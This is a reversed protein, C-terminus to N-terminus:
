RLFLYDGNDAFECSEVSHISQWTLAFEIIDIKSAFVRTWRDFEKRVKIYSQNQRGERRKLTMAINSIKDWSEARAAKRKWSSLDNEKSQAPCQFNALM